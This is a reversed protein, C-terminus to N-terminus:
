FSKEAICSPTEEKTQPYRMAALAASGGIEEAIEGATRVLQPVILERLRSESLAFSLAGCNVAMLEGQASRLPVAATNIQPHWDGISVCYGDRRIGPLSRLLNRRLKSWAAGHTEALEDLVRELAREGLAALWARGLASTVLSLRAGVDLQLSVPASRSRLVEVLVMDPGDRVALFSAADAFEALEALHPRAIARADIGDLFSRALGIARASLEYHDVQASPKLYGFEVLTAVLRTVTPKPIGTLRSLDANALPRSVPEFCELVALGRGLASRTELRRGQSSRRHGPLHSMSRFPTAESAPMRCGSRWGTLYFQFATEIKKGRYLPAFVIREFM